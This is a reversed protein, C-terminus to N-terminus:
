VRKSGWDTLASRRAERDVSQKDEDLYVGLRQEVLTRDTSSSVVIGVILLIIIILGGIIIIWTM